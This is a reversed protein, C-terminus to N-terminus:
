KEDRTRRRTKKRIFSTHLLGRWDRESKQERLRLSRSAFIIYHFMLCNKPSSLMPPIGGDSRENSSELISIFMTSLFQQLFCVIMGKSHIYIARQRRKVISQTLTYTHKLFTYSAWLIKQTSKLRQIGNKFPIHHCFFQLWNTSRCLM